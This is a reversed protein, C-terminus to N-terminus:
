ARPAAVPTAPSVAMGAVGWIAPVAAVVVALYALRPVPPSAEGSHIRAALIALPIVAFLQGFVYFRTQYLAFVLSVTLLLIFLIAARRHLGTWALWAAAALGALMTGLRFFVEDLRGDLYALTPRAEDVRALW